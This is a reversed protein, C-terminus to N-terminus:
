NLCNEPRSIGPSDRPSAPFELVRCSGKSTAFSLPLYLIESPIDQLRPITEGEIEGQM